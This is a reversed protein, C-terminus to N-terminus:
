LCVGYTLCCFAHRCVLYLVSCQQRSCGGRCRVQWLNSDRYQMLLQLTWNLLQERQQPAEVYVGLNGVIDDALKLLLAVVPAVHKFAGHLTLMPGLLGSFLNLLAPCTSPLTGAAAGRLVEVM